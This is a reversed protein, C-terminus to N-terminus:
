EVSKGRLLRFYTPGIRTDNIIFDDVYYTTDLHQQRVEDRYSLNGGFFFKNFAFDTGAQRFILASNDYVSHVNGREDYAWIEISGDHKGASGRTIHFELGFWKGDRAQVNFFDGAQDDKLNEIRHLQTNYPGHIDAVYDLGANTFTNALYEGSCKSGCTKLGMLYFGCGYEWRCGTGERDAVGNIHDIDTFATSITAFKHYSWYKYKDPWIGGGETPFMNNPLKVMYFLYLENYGSNALGSTAYGDAKNVENSGYYLGFRSPGKRLAYDDPNLDM